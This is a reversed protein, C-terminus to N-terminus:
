DMDILTLTRGEALAFMPALLSLALLFAIIKRM